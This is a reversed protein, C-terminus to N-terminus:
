LKMPSLNGFLLWVRQYSYIQIKQRFQNKQKRDDYGDGGDEDGAEGVNGDGDGDGDDDEDHESSNMAATFSRHGRAKIWNSSKWVFCALTKSSLDQMM